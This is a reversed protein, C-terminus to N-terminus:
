GLARMRRETERIGELSLGFPSRVVVSLLAFAVLFVALSLYHFALPAALSIGGLSPRPIGSIGNDGMTLSVWRFALGWV